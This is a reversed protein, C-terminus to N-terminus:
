NLMLSVVTALVFTNEIIFFNLIEEQVTVVTVEEWGMWPQKLHDHYEWTDSFVPFMNHPELDISFVPINLNERTIVAEWENHAECHTPCQALPVSYPATGQDWVDDHFKPSYAHILAPVTGAEIFPNLFPTTNKTFSSM